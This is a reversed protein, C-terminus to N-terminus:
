VFVKNLDAFGKVEIPNGFPDYFFMTHQEGELGAFRLCPKIVFSLEEAMLKDALQQWDSLALVIGFHPMPVPTEDVIGTKESQLPKGLHLSLQHGFFDFDVWSQTQRGRRCGLVGEYFECAQAIDTVNVAIHFLSKM